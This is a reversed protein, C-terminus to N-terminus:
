KQVTVILELQMFHKVMQNLKIISVDHGLQRVQLKLRKANEKRSFAGIQVVYPGLDETKKRFSFVQSLKNDNNQINTEIAPFMSKIILAYYKASDAEGIANFSNIMLETLRQMQPYRPYKIPINKLLSACQTYLGKAYFYEGIKMAAEPAYISKPFTKVIYKYQELASEGDDTLLAKLFLVGSDNPYKSLLEPLNEKVGDLEGEDILSFYLDINQSALISFIFIIFIFKNM